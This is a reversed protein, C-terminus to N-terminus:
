DDLADIVADMDKLIANETKKAEKKPDVKTPDPRDPRKPPETPKPAEKKEPKKPEPAPAPAQEEKRVIKDPAKGFIIKIPDFGVFGVLAPHRGSPDEYMRYGVNLTIGSLRGDLWEESPTWSVLGYFPMNDGYYPTANWKGGGKLAFTGAEPSTVGASWFVESVSPWGELDLSRYGASLYPKYPKLNSWEAKGEIEWGTMGEFSSAKYGPMIVEPVEHTGWPIGAVRLTVDPIAMHEDLKTFPLKGEIGIKLAHDTGRFSFGLTEREWNFWNHDSEIFLRATFPFKKTWTGADHTVALGPALRHNKGSFFWKNPYGYDAYNFEYNIYAEPSAWDSLKLKLKAGVAAELMLSEKNQLFHTYKFKAPTNLEILNHNVIPIPSDPDNPDKSGLILPNLEVGATINPDAEAAARNQYRLDTLKGKVFGGGGLQVPAKLQLKKQLWHAAIEMQTSPKKEEKKKEEKKKVEIEFKKLEKNGEGLVAFEYKKLKAGKPVTGKLTLKRNKDSLVPKPKKGSPFLEERIGTVLNLNNGMCAITIEDGPHATKPYSVTDVKALLIPACLKTLAAVLKKEAAAPDTILTKADSVGVLDKVAQPLAAWIKEITMKIKKTASRDTKQKHIAIYTDFAGDIEPESGSLQWGLYTITNETSKNGTATKAIELMKVLKTLDNLVKKDKGKFTLAELKTTSLTEVWNEDTASFGVEAKGKKTLLKGLEIITGKIKKTATREPDKYHINIYIDYAVPFDKKTLKEGYYTITGDKDPAGTADKAIKLMKTLTLLDQLASVAKKGDDGKASPFDVGSINKCIQDVTFTM